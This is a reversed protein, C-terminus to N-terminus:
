AAIRFCLPASFGTFTCEYAGARGNSNVGCARGSAGSAVSALWWGVRGTCQKRNNAVFAPYQISGYASRNIGLSDKQITNCPFGYLEVETPLWFAGMDIADGATSETLLTSANYRSDIFLRKNTINSILDAPLLAKVGAVGQNTGSADFGMVTSNAGTGSNDVGNLCAYIKSALWPYASKNSGNNNDSSQWPINVGITNESMFDIHHTTGSPYGYQYYTDIGIVRMKHNKAPVNYSTNGDSITGASQACPIYDWINIGEFNNTTCRNKLWHWVSTYNAIEDAFKVTLDVGEYQNNLRTIYGDHIDDLLRESTAYKHVGDGMKVKKTDTGYAIEGSKIVADVTAFEAETGRLQQMGQKITSM